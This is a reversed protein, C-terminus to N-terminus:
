SYFGGLGKGTGRGRRTKSGTRKSRSTVVAKGGERKEALKKAMHVDLFGRKDREFPAVTMHISDAINPSALGARKEMDKKAEVKKKSNAESKVWIPTSLEKAIKNFLQNDEIDISLMDEPEVDEGFEIFRYTNYLLQATVGHAQAKANSYTEGNTKRTGFIVVDSDVVGDGANFPMVDGVCMTPLQYGDADYDRSYGEGDDFTADEVFVAVGDGFGGCEDYRFMDVEYDDGIDLAHRTGERLDTSRLWEECHTLRNGERVSVAHFDRGQGAPDYGAVKEGVNVWRPDKSAFRAAKIWDLQIIVDDGSGKPIGEWINEYESKPMTRKAHLRQEELFKPFFKNDSWNIVRNITKPPPADVWRTYTNDLDSQPNFIVIVIPRGSDPRISPLFTDWSVKTISEAEECLAIDVNSISKVSRINNKLGKFIFLSGNVGEIYTNTIKFFGDLGRNSIAKEIEAKISEDISDQIERTVLVRVKRLSAEVVVADAFQYTKGSGRGGRSVFNTYENRFVTRNKIIDASDTYFYPKFADQPNWILPKSM